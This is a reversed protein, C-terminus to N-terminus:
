NPAARLWVVNMQGKFQRLETMTMAAVSHDNVFRHPTFGAAHLRDIMAAAPLGGVRGLDPSFELVVADTRALTRTAGDIVAPEYGEVDLKLVLVRRDGLGLAQLASDLDVV